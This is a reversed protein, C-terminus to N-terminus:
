GQKLLRTRHSAPIKYKDLIRKFRVGGDGRLVKGINLDFAHLAESHKGKAFGIYSRVVDVPPQLQAIDGAVESADGSLQYAALYDNSITLDAQKRGVLLFAQTPTYAQDVQLGAKAADFREGYSVARVVVWKQSGLKSLDGHFRIGSDKRAYLSIPQQLLPRSSFDLFEEREPTKFITFICDREGQQMLNLARAWPLVELEVTWGAPGLAQKVVDVAVGQPKGDAGTFILPPYDLSVCRLTGGGYALPSLSVFAMAAVTLRRMKSMVAPLETQM